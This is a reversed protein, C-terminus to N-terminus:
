FPSVIKKKDLIKNVKRIEGATMLNKVAEVLTMAKKKKLWSANLERTGFARELEKLDDQTNLLEMTDYVGKQNCGFLGGNIGFSADLDAALGIAKSEYWAADYSLNSRDISIAVQNLYAEDDIEKKNKKINRKLVVVIVVILLVSGAIALIKNFDIKNLVATTLLPNM